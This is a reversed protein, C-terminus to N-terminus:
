LAEAEALITKAVAQHVEDVMVRRQIALVSGDLVSMHEDLVVVDIGVDSLNSQLWSILVPNNTRILEYMEIEGKNRM